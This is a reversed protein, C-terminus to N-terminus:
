DNVYADSFAELFLDDRKNVRIKITGRENLDLSESGAMKNIPYFRKHPTDFAVTTAIFFFIPNYDRYM